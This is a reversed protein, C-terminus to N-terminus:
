IYNRKLVLDCLVINIVEGRIKMGRLFKDVGGVLFLLFVKKVDEYGYIEFVISSVLKDYFDDEVVQKIEDEILEEVGFEDDEMKNM